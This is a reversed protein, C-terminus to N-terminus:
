DGFLDKPGPKCRYGVFCQPTDLSPVWAPDVYENVECFSRDRVFRDYGFGGTGLVVAGHAFVLQQSTGCPLAPASPRPQAFLPTPAILTLLVALIRRMTM